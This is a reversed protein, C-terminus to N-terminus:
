GGAQTVEEEEEEEGDGGNGSRSRIGLSSRIKKELDENWEGYVEKAMGMVGDLGIEEKARPGVHWSVVQEGDQGVPPREAKRIVYGQREMKKLTADTRETSVNQDANLRTLYRKLKQESLEGGNLWVLSVIMTYFAVYTAEDEASPIKSPGLIEAARYADPLTSSLIYAGSGIKPQSNSKM